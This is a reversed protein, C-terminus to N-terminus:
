LEFFIWHVSILVYNKPSSALFPMCWGSISLRQMWLEGIEGEDLCV